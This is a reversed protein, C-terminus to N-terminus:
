DVVEFDVRTWLVNNLYIELSCTGDPLDEISKKSWWYWKSSKGFEEEEETGSSWKMKGCTGSLAHLRIIATITKTNKRQFRSSHSVMSQVNAHNVESDTLIVRSVFPFDWPSDLNEPTNHFIERDVVFDPHDAERWLREGEKKSAESVFAVRSVFEMPIYDPVLAEAQVLRVWDQSWPMICRVMEFNILELGSLGEGWDHGDKAANTNTFVTGEWGAVEVSVVFFCLHNESKKHYAMPTHSTLNLAVKDWNENLM